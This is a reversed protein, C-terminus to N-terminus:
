YLRILNILNINIEGEYKGRQITAEQMFINFDEALKVSMKLEKMVSATIM